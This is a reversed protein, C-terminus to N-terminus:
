VSETELMSNITRCANVNENVLTDMGIKTKDVVLKTQIQLEYNIELIFLHSDHDMVKLAIKDDGGIRKLFSVESPDDTNLKNSFDVETLNFEYQKLCSPCKGEIKSIDNATM